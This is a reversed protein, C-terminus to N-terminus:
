DENQDGIIAVLLIEYITEDSANLIPHGRITPALDQEVFKLEM